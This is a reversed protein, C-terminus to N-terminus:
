VDSRYQRAFGFPLLQKNWLYATVINQSRTVSDPHIHIWGAFLLHGVLTPGISPWRRLRQGLLPGVNPPHRKRAPCASIWWRSIWTASPHVSGSECADESRWWPINWNACNSFHLGACDDVHGQITRDPINFGKLAPVTRLRWIRVDTSALNQRRFVIGASFSNLFYLLRLGM